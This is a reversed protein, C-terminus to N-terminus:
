RKLEYFLRTVEFGAGAKPPDYVVGLGFASAGAEEPSHRETRNIFVGEFREAGGGDYVKTGTLLAGSVRADRLTFRRGGGRAPESGSGEAAGDASVRLELRFDPEAVYVGSYEAASRRVAPTARVEVFVELRVGRKEKVKHKDKNFYSALERARVGADQRAAAGGVAALCVGAALAAWVVRRM